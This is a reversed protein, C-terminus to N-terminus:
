AGHRAVGKAIRGSCGRAGRTQRFSSSRCKFIINEFQNDGQELNHLYAPQLYAPPMDSFRAEQWKAVQM